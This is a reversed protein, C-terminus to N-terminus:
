PKVVVKIAEETNLQMEFAQKIEDLRFEHTILAKTNLKGQCVAEFAKDWVAGSNGRIMLNGTTLEEMLKPSIHIDREFLAVQIMTGPRRLMGPAPRLMGLGQCFANPAGSCEIVADAMNGSTAEKVAEVPDTVRPDITIDAGLKRALALRKASPESVIVTAAGQLKAIQIVGLGIAGAGLVVLTSDPQIQAQDVAYWSITMPEIVAAEEWGMEDPLEFLIIGPMPNPVVLYEALSGDLGYGIGGFSPCQLVMGQRCAECVNCMQIGYGTVRSGLRVGQVASGVEVVEGSWEHGIITRGKPIVTPGKKYFHLDSGCIGCAAVKVLIENDRITPTEVTEVRIDAPGRIVAAKM